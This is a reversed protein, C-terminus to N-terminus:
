APPFWGRALALAFQRFEAAADGRRELQLMLRRLAPSFVRPHDGMLESPAHGLIVGQTLSRVANRLEEPDEPRLARSLADNITTGQRVLISAHALVRALLAQPESTGADPWAALADSEEILVGQVEMEQIFRLLERPFPAPLEALAASLTEGQQVRATARRIGEAWGPAAAEGALLTLSDVIPLGRRLLFAFQEFFRGSHRSAM